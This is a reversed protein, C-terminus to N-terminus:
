TFAFNVRILSAFHIVSPGYLCTFAVTTVDVCPRTVSSGLDSRIPIYFVLITLPIASTRASCGKSTKMLLMPDRSCRHGFPMITSYAM